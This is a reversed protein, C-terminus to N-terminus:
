MWIEKNKALPGSVSAPTSEHMLNLKSLKIRGIQTNKAKPSSILQQSHTAYSVLLAVVLFAAKKM